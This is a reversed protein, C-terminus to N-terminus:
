GANTELPIDSDRPSSHVTRLAARWPHHVPPREVSPTKGRQLPPRPPTKKPKSHMVLERYRVPDHDVANQLLRLFILGRSLSRRRSFRFVFENIYAPLHANDVSGQHTGLLWRKLLAAIRHVNPLLDEDNGAARAARQSRREHVYGRRRLGAYGQWGDTVVTSGPEVNEEIFPLLSEESGDAMVAIRCRGLGKPERLEVAIAVLAKKGAARGGPLGKEEGGVFTEDIEVRGSLKDRGPRVCVSRLRHMMAWVTQYSGIELTRQVSQASVGDKGTCFLWCAHFWVTLPTRTKDFITGATVSTRADCASCRYRGDAMRWGGSGCDPCVFGNPWRVWDLYDLCAADTSFWSLFEGTSKPYDVGSVPRAPSVSMM